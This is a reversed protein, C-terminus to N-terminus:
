LSVVTTTVQSYFELSERGGQVGVGSRGHGQLPTLFDRVQWCNVWNIGAKLAAATRHARSLDNTWVMSALGFETDNARAIAEAESDFPAVHVIPGFTEKRSLEADDPLGTLITAPYYAGDGEPVEGGIICQGGAQRARKVAEHVHSRHEQSILPGLTHRNANEVLKSVFAEFVTREVFLREMSLCVQGSNAFAAAACAQAAKDLDADAFILGANKGGLEFLVPRLGEAASKMIATASRGEGTFGFGDIGPHAALIAGTSNAGFGHVVNFVGPPLGAEHLIEALLAASSPSHESPKAIVCNGAALAPALNLALLLLPVNWPAIIAVVGLPRRRTYALAQPAQNRPINPSLARGHWADNSETRLLTAYLRFTEVTRAVHAALVESKSRGIDAVEVLALDDARELIASALWDLLDARDNRDWEEWDQRAERAASVALNVVHEDAEHVLAVLSSDVPSRKSFTRPGPLFQGGVYSFIEKM